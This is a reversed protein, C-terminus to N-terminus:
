GHKFEKGKSELRAKRNKVHQANPSANTYIFSNEPEYTGQYHSDLDDDWEDTIINIGKVHLIGDKDIKMVREWNWDKNERYSTRKMFYIANDRDELPDVKDAETMVFANRFPIDNYTDVFSNAFYLPTSAGLDYTSDASPVFDDVVLIQASGSAIVLDAGTGGIIFGYDDTSNYGITLKNNGSSNQMSILNDDGTGSSKMIIDGGSQFVCAGSGTVSIAPSGDVTLTGANIAGANIAVTANITGATLTGVDAAISSLTSVNMKGSTISTNDIKSGNVDSIKANTITADTIIAGNIFTSTTSQFVVTGAANSVQIGWNDNTTGFDGIAVRTTGAEDVVEILTDSGGLRISGNGSGGLYLDQTFISDATITDADLDLVRLTSILWGSAVSNQLNRLGLYQSSLYTNVKELYDSETMEDKNWSPPAPIFQENFAPSTPFSATAM